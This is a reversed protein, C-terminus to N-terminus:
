RVWADPRATSMRRSAPCSGTALGSDSASVNRGTADYARVEGRRLDGAAAPFSFGGPAAIAGPPEAHLAVPVTGLVLVLAGRLFCRRM